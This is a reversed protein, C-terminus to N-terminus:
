LYAEDIQVSAIWLTLTMTAALATFIVTSTAVLRVRGLQYWMM